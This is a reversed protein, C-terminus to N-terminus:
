TFNKIVRPKNLNEIGKQTVKMPKYNIQKKVDRLVRHERYERMVSVSLKDLTLSSKIFPSYCNSKLGLDSHCAASQSARTWGPGTKWLQWLLEQPFQPSADSQWAPAWPARGPAGRPDDPHGSGPHPRPHTVPQMEVAPAPCRGPKTRLRQTLVLSLFHM